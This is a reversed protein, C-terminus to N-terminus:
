GPTNTPDTQAGKQNNTYLENAQLEKQKQELIGRIKAVDNTMQWMKLFFILRVILIVIAIVVFVLTTTATMGFLGQATNNVQTNSNLTNTSYTYKDM